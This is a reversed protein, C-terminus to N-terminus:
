TSSRKQISLTEANTSYEVKNLVRRNDLVQGKKLVRCKELVRIKFEVRNSLFFIRVPGPKM